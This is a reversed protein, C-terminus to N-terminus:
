RASRRPPVGQALAVPPPRLPAEERSPPALPARALPRLPYVRYFGGLLQGLERLVQADPTRWPEYSALQGERLLLRRVQAM